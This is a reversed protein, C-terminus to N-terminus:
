NHQARAEDYIAMLDDFHSGCLAEIKVRGQRGMHRCSARDGQLRLMKEALDQENGPCFLYGTEGDDLIEPIGGISSAVVPRGLANAEYITMPCNEYCESPLVVFASGRIVAQLEEGQKYGAFTVNRIAQERTYRELEGRYPGEGVILIPLRPVLAAAKLLTLLGKEHSLRGLFVGYEGPDDSPAYASLDIFNPLVRVREKPLGGRIMNRALFKSPCIFMDVNKEYIRTWSHVYHALSALFSPGLSQQLCRHVTAQYYHGGICRECIEHRHNIYLHSAPCVIEHNHLTQVVPVGFGKLAPLVSPSIQRGIMHVHALDPKKAQLLAAMKLKSERSYVMKGVTRLATRAKYALSTGRFKIESVFFPSCDSELNREHQMAFFCVDHGHQRLVASLELMYREPGAAQWYFKNVQLVRM